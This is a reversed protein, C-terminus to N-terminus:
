LQLAALRRQDPDQRPVPGPVGPVVVNELHRLLKGAQSVVDHRSVLGPRPCQPLLLDDPHHLPGEVQLHLLVIKEGLLAFDSSNNQRSM